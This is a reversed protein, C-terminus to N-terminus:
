KEEQIIKCDGLHLKKEDGVTIIHVSISRDGYISMIQGKIEVM